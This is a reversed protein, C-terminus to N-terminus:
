SRLMDLLRKVDAVLNAIPTPRKVGDRRLSLEVEGAALGRQGLVVRVPFGILDMDNFKVGPREPRDDFVVD